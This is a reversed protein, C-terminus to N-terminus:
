SRPESSPSAGKALAKLASIEAELVHRPPINMWGLMTAISTLTREADTPATPSDSRRAFEAEIEAITAEYRLITRALKEGLELEGGVYMDDGSLVERAGEVKAEREKKTLPATDGSRPGPTPLSTM